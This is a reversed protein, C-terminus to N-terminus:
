KLHDITKCLSCLSPTLHIAHMTPSAASPPEQALTRGTFPVIGLGIGIVTGRGVNPLQAGQAASNKMVLLLGIGVAGAIALPVLAKSSM